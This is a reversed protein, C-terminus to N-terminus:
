AATRANDDGDITEQSHDEMWKYVSSFDLGDWNETNALHAYIQQATAGLTPHVQVDQAAKMALGLDKAILRNVFGGVYDRAAPADPLVGPAPNNVEASWCRGTSTNIISSLLAPDLGLKKGLFLAESVGIMSIALLMNNCLKAGQGSGNHGCHVVNKGMCSLVPKVAEFGEKTNSGVMFTLTGKDAGMTGGSVPADVALAGKSMILAAVDKAVMPDITSSDALKHRSDVVKELQRYVGEVHASAPLMTMIMSSREAVEEVSKAAQVEPCVKQVAAVAAANVDFVIVKGSHKAALNRTM